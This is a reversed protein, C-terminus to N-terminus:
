DSGLIEDVIAATDDLEFEQELTEQVQRREVGQVALQTARILARQREHPARAASQETDREPPSAISPPATVPSDASASASTADADDVPSPSRPPQAPDPAALTPGAPEPPAAKPPAPENLVRELAATVEAVRREIERGHTRLMELAEELHQRRADLLADAEQRREALYRDAEESAERRIDESLGEATVLIQRIREAAGSPSAPDPSGAM